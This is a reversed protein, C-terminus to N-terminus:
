ISRAKHMFLFSYPATSMNVKERSLTLQVTLDSRAGGNGGGGRCGEGENADVQFKEAGFTVSNWFSYQCASVRTKGPYGGGGDGVQERQFDTYSSKGTSAKSKM